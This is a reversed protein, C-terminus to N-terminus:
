RVTVEHLPVVVRGYRLVSKMLASAILHSVVAKDIYHLYSNVFVADLRLVQLFRCSCERCWRIFAIGM